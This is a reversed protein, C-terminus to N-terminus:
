RLRSGHAKRWNEMVQDEIARKMHLQCRGEWWVEFDADPDDRMVELWADQNEQWEEFNRPSGIDDIILVVGNECNECDRGGDGGNFREPRLSYENPFTRELMWAAATWNTLAAARIVQMTQLQSVARAAEARRYFDAYPRETEDILDLADADGAVSEATRLAGEGRQMWSFYTRRGIGAAACAARTSVGMTLGELLRDIRAPEAVVLPVKGMKRLQKSM